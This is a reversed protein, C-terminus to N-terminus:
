RNFPLENIWHFGRTTLRFAADEDSKRLTAHIKRGNLAGDIVMTTPVPRHFTFPWKSEDAKILLMTGKKEDLELGYRLRRGVMPYIAIVDPRDIVIRRWRTDDTVLPPRNVGDIVLTDVNWIGRMPSRATNYTRAEISFQLGKVIVFVVLATRLVIGAIRPWRGQVVESPHHLFFTQALRKADPLV